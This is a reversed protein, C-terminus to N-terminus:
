NLLEQFFELDKKIVKGWDQKLNHDSKPYTFYNVEKGLGQMQNTFDDSWQQPVLTDAGGQHVQIPAVIDGLHSNACFKSVDYKKEFKKIRDYVEKGLDDMKEYDDMYNLISEPFKETVPAWLTTPYNTESIELVSLAIQGGNSHGWLFIKEPDAMSLTKISAILNLVTIPRTFRTELIDAPPSDSRGFGLFDPALTIFGNQAFKGATNRTGLGTFYIQDDVYGRLMIIVPMTKSGPTIPLNLMGTVKKGDSLYSFLWSTYGGTPEGQGNRSTPSALGEQEKIIKELKIESGAFTREKLKEFSYKELPGIEKQPQNKGLPSITQKSNEKKALLYFGTALLLLATITLLIKKLVSLIKAFKTEGPPTKHVNTM